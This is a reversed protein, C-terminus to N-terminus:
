ATGDPTHPTDHVELNAVVNDAALFNTLRVDGIDKLYVGNGLNKWTKFNNFIAPVSNTNSLDACEVQKPNM